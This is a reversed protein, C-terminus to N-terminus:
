WAPDAGHYQKVVMEVVLKVADGIEHLSSTFIEILELLKTGTDQRQTKLRSVYGGLEATLKTIEELYKKFQYAYTQYLKEGRPGPNTKVASVDSDRKFNEILRTITDRSEDLTKNLENLKDEPIAQSPPVDNLEILMAILKSLGLKRTDTLTVLANTAPMIRAPLDLTEPTKPQVKKGSGGGSGGSGSSGANKNYRYEYRNQKQSRYNNNFGFLNKIYEVYFKIDDWLIKLLNKIQTWVWQIASKLDEQTAIDALNKPILFSM